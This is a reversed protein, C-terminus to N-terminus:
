RVQLSLSVMTTFMPGTGFWWVTVFELLSLECSRLDKTYSAVKCARVVKVTPFCRPATRNTSMCIPTFKVKNMM